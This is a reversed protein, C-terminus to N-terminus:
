TEGEEREQGEGGEGVARREAEWEEWGWAVWEKYEGESRTEVLGGWSSVSVFAGLLAFLGGFRLVWVVGGGLAIAATTHSPPIPSALSSFTSSPSSPPSSTLKFILSAVLAVFFQPLVIALNHIGLLTGGSPKNRQMTGDEGEAGGYGNASSDKRRWGSNALLPSREDARGGGGEGRVPSGRAPSSSTSAEGNGNGSGSGHYASSPFTFSAQRLSNAKARFPTRFDRKPFSASSRRPSSSHTPLASFSSSSPSDLPSPSSPPSSQDLERISEMVLAFPVWCTLAWPVGAVAVVVVAGQVSRVWFTGAMAAAYWALGVTWCRRPTIGALVRRGFPGVRSPLSTFTTCLTTLPPILSGALLSVLAYLLLAFSGLRTSPDVDPASPSSPPSSPQSPTFSAFSSFHSHPSSPTQQTAHFVETIYTTAYFLFPFWATWAFFQVYCVRKVPKPLERVNRVVDGVVGKVQKWSSERREGEGERPEEESSVCTVGVCAVLVVCSTLALKRFQGGGLFRLFSFLRSHGLDFYGLTYGLINALHTQRALWANSLSTQSTPSLDLVLARISAQLGNLAFDLGYFGVVGLWIAVTKRRADNAPDWDGATGPLLSVILSALPPAFSILLTSFLIVLTSLVIYQRRRFRSPSSDSLAGVVPQVILGSLPGAMWVLSTAQKSLGLSLLYPTGYAMEVTWCLQAGALGVTMKLLDATSLHDKKVSKFNTLPEDHDDLQEDQREEGEGQSGNRTANGGAGRQLGHAHTINPSPPLDAFSQYTTHPNHQQSPSVPSRPSHPPTAHSSRHSSPFARRAPTSPSSGPM